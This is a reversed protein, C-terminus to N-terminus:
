VLSMQNPDLTRTRAKMPQNLLNFFFSRSVGLALAVEMVNKTAPDYHVKIYRHFLNTLPNKPVTVITNPAKQFLNVVVDMGCTAAIFHWTPNSIDELLFPGNKRGSKEATEILKQFGTQPVIFSQGPLRKILVKATELGCADGIYQLAENPLDDLTLEDFPDPLM